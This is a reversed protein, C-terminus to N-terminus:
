FISKDFTVFKFDRGAQESDNKTSIISRLVAKMVKEESSCPLVIRKNQSIFESIEADGRIHTSPKVSVLRVSGNEMIGISYDTADEVANYNTSLKSLILNAHSCIGVSSASGECSHCQIRHKLSNRIRKRRCDLTVISCASDMKGLFKRNYTFWSAFDDNPKCSVDSEIFCSIDRSSTEKDIRSLMRSIGILINRNKTLLDRHESM